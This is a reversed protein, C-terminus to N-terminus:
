TCIIASDGDPPTVRLANIVFPAGHADGGCQGTAVLRVAGWPTPAAPWTLDMDNIVGDTEDLSVCPAAVGPQGEPQSITVSLRDVALQGANSTTFVVVPAAHRITIDGLSIAQANTIGVGGNGGTTSTSSVSCREMRLGSVQHDTLSEARVSWNTCDDIRAEGVDIEFDSFRRDGAAGPRALLHIGTDCDTATVADVRVARSAVYNWGVDTGPEASDIMVASGSRVGTVRLGGVAVRHAGAIRLGNARSDDVSVNGITFDANTWDSLAPFAFTHAADDFSFKQAHYTVLALGDDGTNAARYDNVAGGRCANFHLGDAGTDSVRLGTVTIDSVGLMIVGAQPSARVICDSLRIGSVPTRLGSWGSPPALGAVPCGEVRIGDGMSRTAGAAWRINVHHLTIRSAPGRILLGHSTGTQTTPDLNDMLLEAGPEFEVRVDSVRTIVIAASRRPHQQAFRYTGSPFYLTDNSRLAAAAAQIARSDDTVGDGTAGFQRVDVTAAARQCGPLV